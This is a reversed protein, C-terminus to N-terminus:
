TIGCWIGKEFMLLMDVDRLLELRFKDPCLKCDKRKKWTSCVWSSDRNLGAMGTWTSHLLFVPDLKYSELWTDWFTESVDALPVKHIM